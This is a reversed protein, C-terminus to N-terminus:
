EGLVSWSKLVRICRALSDSNQAAVEPRWSGQVFDAIRSSYGPGVKRGSKEAPLMDERIRKLGCKSRILDILFRKPDKEADPNQPFNKAPIRLFQAMKGRDAMLWAEISRVAIRLEMNSSPMPLIHNVYELACAADQDLDLVVLWRTNFKAAENYKSINPLIKTKGGPLRTEFDRMDAYMLLSKLVLSDTLGEVILYTKPQIKSM